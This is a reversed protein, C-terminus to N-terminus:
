VVFCVTQFHVCGGACLLFSLLFTISKIFTINVLSCAETAVQMDFHNNLIKSRQTSFYFKHLHIERPTLHMEKGFATGCGAVDFSTM